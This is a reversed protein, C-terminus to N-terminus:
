SSTSSKDSVVFYKDCDSRHSRINGEVDYFSDVTDIPNPQSKDSAYSLLMLRIIM